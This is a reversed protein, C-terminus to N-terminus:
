FSGAIGVSRALPNVLLSASASAPSAEKPASVAYWVAGSGILAGAAIWGGVGLADDRHITTGGSDYAAQTCGPPLTTCQTKLASYKSSGEVYFVTALVGVVVGTGGLVVPVVWRKSSEARPAAVPAQPAVAPPTATCEGHVREQGDPCPQASPDPTLHVDVDVSAREAVDVDSSYPLYGTATVAITLKGPSVVYPTGLLAVNIEEGSVTVRADAPVPAPLRVTVRGVRKGLSDELERCASLIRDRDNLRDNAEAEAACQRGNGYADALLGLASQERALFLRLSTTMKIAAARKAAALAEAHNGQDSLTGAQTILEQRTALERDSQARASASALLLAIALSKAPRRRM